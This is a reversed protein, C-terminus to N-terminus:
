EEEEKEKLRDLRKKNIRKLNRLVKSYDVRDLSKYRKFERVFEKVTVVGEQTKSWFDEFIQESGFERILQAGGIRLFEEFDGRDIDYGMDKLSTLSNTIRKEQTASVGTIASTGSAIKENIELAQKYLSDFPLSSLKNFSTTYRPREKGLQMSALQYAYSDVSLGAKELRYFRQNIQKSMRVVERALLVKSKAQRLERLKMVNSFVYQRPM